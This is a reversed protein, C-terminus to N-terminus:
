LIYLHGVELLLYKDSGMKNAPSVLTIIEPLFKRSKEVTDFV